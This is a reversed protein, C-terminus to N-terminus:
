AFTNEPLQHTIEFSSLIDLNYERIYQMTSILRKADNFFFVFRIDSTSDETMMWEHNYQENCHAMTSCITEAFTLYTARINSKKIQDVNLKFEVWSLYSLKKFEDISASLMETRSLGRDYLDENIHVLDLEEVMALLRKPISMYHDTLMEILNM